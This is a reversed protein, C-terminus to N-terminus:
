NVGFLALAENMEAKSRQGGNDDSIDASKVSVSSSKQQIYENTSSANSSSNINSFVTKRAYFSSPFPLGLTSPNYPIDKYSNIFKTLEEKTINELDIDSMKIFEHALIGLLKGFKKSCKDMLIICELQKEDNADFYVHRVDYDYDAPTKRKM